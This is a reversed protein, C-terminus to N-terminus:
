ASRAHEKQHGREPRLGSRLRGLAADNTKVQWATLREINLRDPPAGLAPLIHIPNKLWQAQDTLATLATLITL